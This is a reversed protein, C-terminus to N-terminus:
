QLEKEILPWMKPKWVAWSGGAAAIREGWRKQEASLPAKVKLERFLIRDRVLVLDPWGVGDAGAPTAFFIGGGKRQIRVCRFSACLWGHLRGFAIVQRQFAAESVM